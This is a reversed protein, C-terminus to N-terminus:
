PDRLELAELVWEADLVLDDVDGAEPFEEGLPAGDGDLVEDLGPGDTVAREDLHEAVPVDVDRDVHACVREGRGGLVLELLGAARDGLESGEPVGAPHLAPLPRYGLTDAVETDPGHDDTEGPPRQK